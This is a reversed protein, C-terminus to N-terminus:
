FIGLSEQQINDQQTEQENQSALLGVGALDAGAHNYIECDFLHNAGGSSRQTWIINGTKPDKIKHEASLHRCYEDTIANNVLWKGEKRRDEHQNKFFTTNIEKREIGHEKSGVANRICPTMNPVSSGIIPVIRADTAAFNFVRNSMYKSDILMMSITAEGNEKDNGISWVKNLVEELKEVGGVTGFEILQSKYDEGWARVVYYCLNGELQVDASAIILQAWEPIIGAAPAKERMIEIDAAKISGVEDEFPEAM